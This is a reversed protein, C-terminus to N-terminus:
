RGSKVGSKQRGMMAQPPRPFYFHLLTMLNALMLGFYSRLTEASLAGEM